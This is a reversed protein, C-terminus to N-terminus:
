FGEVSLDYLAMIGVHSVILAGDQAGFVIKVLRAILPYLPYFAVPQPQKAAQVADFSHGFHLIRLYRGSDYRLLYPYWGNANWLGQGPLQPLYSAAFFIALAILLRSSCFILLAAFYGALATWGRSANASPGTLWFILTSLSSRKVM